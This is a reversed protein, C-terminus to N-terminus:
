GKPQYLNKLRHLFEQDRKKATDELEGKSFDTSYDFFGKGSKIGGHGESVLKTLAM